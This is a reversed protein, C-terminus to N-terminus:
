CNTYLLIVFRELADMYDDVISLNPTAALACFAATVDTVEDCAKWTEWATKKGRGGFSSVTDCGTLAHFFPLGRCKNPGLAVAMEHGALFRFNKGTAFAVWLEDIDLRGAATVALIVDTYVTRIAVKSYGQRMTDEVHRLIRTDAKEHSCTALGAVDRPQTCLMYKHHTSIIQEETETTAIRKALFAFLEM